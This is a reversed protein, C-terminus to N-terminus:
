ETLRLPLRGTIKLFLLGWTSFGADIQLASVAGKSQPEPCARFGRKKQM